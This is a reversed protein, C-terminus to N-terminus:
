SKAGEMLAITTNRKRYAAPIWVHLLAPEVVQQLLTNSGSDSESAAYSSLSAFLVAWAAM